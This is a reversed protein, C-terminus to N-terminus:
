RRRRRRNRARVSRRPPEADKPATTFEGEVVGGPTDMTPASFHLGDTGRRELASGETEPGAVDLNFAFGVSEEKIAETMATFMEFGEREYEVVPERGLTWRLGIGERLYDM